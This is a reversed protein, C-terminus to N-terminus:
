TFFLHMQVARVCFVTQKRIKWNSARSYAYPNSISTSRSIMKLDNSRTASIKNTNTTCTLIFNQHSNICRKYYYDISLLELEHVSRLLVILDFHDFSRFTIIILVYTKKKCTFNEIFTFRDYHLQNMQNTCKTSHYCNTYNNVNLTILYHKRSFFLKLAYRTVIIMLLITLKLKILVRDYYLFSEVRTWQIIMKNRESRNIERLALIKHDFHSWKENAIEQLDKEFRELQFHIWWIVKGHTRWRVLWVFPKNHKPKNLYFKVFILTFTRSVIWLVEVNRLFHDDQRQLLFLLIVTFTIRIKILNVKESIIM